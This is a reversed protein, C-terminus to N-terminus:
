GAAQKPFAEMVAAEIRVRLEDLDVVIGRSLLWTEARNMVYILKDNIAGSLKMQEAAYVCTKIFLDLAYQQEASLLQKQYSGQAFLWRAAFGAVPLLVTMLLAQLSNAIAQMDFTPGPVVPPNPDQAFAPVVMFAAFVIVAFLVPLFKKM